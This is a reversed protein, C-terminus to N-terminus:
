LLAELKAQLASESLTGFTIDAPQGDKFFIITPVSRVQFKECTKPNDDVDMKFVRTKGANASAFAELAPAMSHCPGCRPSWFDVVRVGKAELVAETFQADNLTDTAKNQM